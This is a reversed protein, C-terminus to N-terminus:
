LEEKKTDYYMKKNNYDVCVDLCNKRCIEDKFCDHSKYWKERDERVNSNIVGIPNGQERLYIICPYHYKGVVAMDDLVLPCQRNDLEGIGRVNRNNKINNIRYKLIPYKNIINEDIDSVISLLQNYQAASIIRIDSVGLSDAFHIINKVENINDETIVIGITVYTLKSLEKINNVLKDWALNIEGAMKKAHSSCCADLSISFDNVGANILEKYYELDASGNSSLAIREIGKDKAYNVLNLLNPWITPEGGSLRINHVRDNVWFDIVQKAESLTIDRQYEEKLGRCYACKFNCRHTLILECRWLDSSTSSNKARDDSLTYFGIDELKNM